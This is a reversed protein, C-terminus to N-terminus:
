NINAMAFSKESVVPLKEERLFSNMNGLKIKCGGPENSILYQRSNDLIRFSKEDEAYAALFDVGRQTLVFVPIQKSIQLLAVAGINQRVAFSACSWVLDGYQRIQEVKRDAIGTTCVVLITIATDATEMQRIEKLKNADHGSVTVAIRKYGSEIAREIGKVQDILANEFIVFCGLGKLRSITEKIPSTLLLSNMRVGVGQVVEGRDTIITGAGDCVIVAADVAKKNLAFMLMESAGYPIATSNATLIRQATFLGYDKVKSEIAKKIEAKVAEKDAGDISRLGKYLHGALPCYSLAPDTVNIVKGNSVSIFSSFYRLVHIDRNASDM